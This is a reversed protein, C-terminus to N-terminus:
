DYVGEVFWERINLDCYIRYLGSRDLAVDWEDRAWQAQTWWDGSSRWPGAAEVVEGQLGPAAVYRPEQSRLRVKAPLAPRFIRLMLRVTVVGDRDHSPASGRTDALPKAESFARVRFADPRHTDLLEPSGANDEGVMATIRALTIQLKEPEPAPPLFLGGQSTRPEVPNLSLAIATIPAAPPHEELELQLLKLLARTDKQPVPLELIRSHEQGKELRLRATIRNTTMSQSDLRRCIEGLMRSLVFLLPELQAVPDELEAQASYDTAPPALHLPRHIRGLALEYLRVGAEGLREALGIPPLAAVDELTKLGWRGLTELLEPPAPVHELPIWGLRAPEEGAPIVTVGGFNSAALVATDPNAAIALNAMIGCEAGRRAIESAIQHPTGFLRGLGEMSFVVTGPSAVEVAPSFSGALKLLSVTSAPSAGPVHLCAFM